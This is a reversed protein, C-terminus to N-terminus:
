LKTGRWFLTVVIIMEYGIPWLVLNSDPDPIWIRSARTKVPEDVSSQCRPSSSQNQHPSNGASISGLLVQLSYVISWWISIICEWHRICRGLHTGQVGVEVLVQHTHLLEVPEKAVVARLLGLVRWLNLFANFFNQKIIKKDVNVPPTPYHRDLVLFRLLAWSPAQTARSSAEM